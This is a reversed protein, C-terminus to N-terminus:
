QMVIATALILWLIWALLIAYPFASRRFVWYGLSIIGSIFIPIALLALTKKIIEATENGTFIKSLGNLLFDHTWLFQHLGQQLYSQGWVVLASLGIFFIVNKIM